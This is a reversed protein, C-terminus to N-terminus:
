PEPGSTARRSAKSATQHTTARRTTAKRTM